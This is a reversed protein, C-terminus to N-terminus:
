SSMTIEGTIKFTATATIKDDMPVGQGLATCYAAFSYTTAGTDTLVIQYNVSDDSEFDGDLTEYGDRTWNMTLSIEGGDRFGPIFERYGGTSDLNTVDITDRSKNPGDINSVESIKTFAENSAGDGRQFEAGVGSVAESM